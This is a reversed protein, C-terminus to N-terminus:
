RALLLCMRWSMVMGVRTRFAWFSGKRGACRRGSVAAGQTVRSYGLSPPWMPKVVFGKGPWRVQSGWLIV